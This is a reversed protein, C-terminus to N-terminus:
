QGDQPGAKFITDNSTHAFHPFNRDFHWFVKDGRNLGLGPHTYRFRNPLRELQHTLSLGQMSQARKTAFDTEADIKDREAFLFVSSQNGGVGTAENGIEPSVLAPIDFGDVRRHFAPREM